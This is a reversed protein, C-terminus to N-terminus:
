SQLFKVYELKDSSQFYTLMKKVEKAAGRIVFIELCKNNSLHSHIQTAIMEQFTHRAEDLMPHTHDHVIILVGEVTGALADRERAATEASRLCVRIAESRGALGLSSQIKELVKLNKETLSVSIIPM